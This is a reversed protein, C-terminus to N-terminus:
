NPQPVILSNTAWTAASKTRDVVYALQGLGPVQVAQAATVLATDRADIDLAQTAGTQPIGERLEAIRMVNSRPSVLFVGVATDHAAAYRKAYDLAVSADVPRDTFDIRAGVTIPSQAMGHGHIENHLKTAIVPAATINM